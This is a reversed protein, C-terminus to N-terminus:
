RGTRKLCSQEGESDDTKAEVIVQHSQLRESDVSVRCRELSKEDCDTSITRCFVGKGLSFDRREVPISKPKAFCSRPALYGGLSLRSPASSGIDQVPPALRSGEGGEPSRTREAVNATAALVAGPTRPLFAPVSRLIVSPVITVSPIGSPKRESRRPLPAVLPSPALRV